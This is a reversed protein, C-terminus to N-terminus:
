DGVFDYTEKFIEDKIPYYEGKVGKIIWDNEQAHMVGELTPIDLHIKNEEDQWPEPKGDILEGFGIFDRMEDGTDWRLQVAEIIVPRKRYKAM